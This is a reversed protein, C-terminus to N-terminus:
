QKILRISKKAGQEKDSFDFIYIGPQWKSFGANVSNALISPSGSASFVQRGAIDYVKLGLGAWLGTGAIIVKRAATPTQV